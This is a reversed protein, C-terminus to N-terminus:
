RWPDNDIRGVETTPEPAEPGPPDDSPHTLLFPLRAVLRQVIVISMLLNLGTVVFLAVDVASLM